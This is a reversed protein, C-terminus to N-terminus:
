LLLKDLTVFCSLLLSLVAILNTLNWIDLYCLPSVQTDGPQEEAKGSPRGGLLLNCIIVGRM